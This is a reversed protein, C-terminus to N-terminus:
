PKPKSKTISEPKPSITNTQPKTPETLAEVRTAVSTDMRYPSWTRWAPLKRAELSQPNLNRVLNRLLGM